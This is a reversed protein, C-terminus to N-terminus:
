KEERGLGCYSLVTLKTAKCKVIKCYCTEFFFIIIYVSWGASCPGFFFKKFCGQLLAVLSFITFMRFRFLHDFFLYDTMAAAHAAAATETWFFFLGVDHRWM